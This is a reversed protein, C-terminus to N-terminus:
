CESLVTNRIIPLIQKRTLRLNRQAYIYIVFNGHEDHIERVLSLELSPQASVTLAEIIKGRLKDAALSFVAIDRHVNGSNHELGILIIIMTNKSKAFNELSKLSDELDVFNKVLIPLGIIPVGATVKIDKILLDDATLESIDSKAKNIENFVKNRDLNLQGAKELAAVIEVDVPTARDAEKSFNSTDILIPGRLLSSLQSDIVEPHKNLLNRAVLTSCSGVIELDMEKGSWPWQEDQPRHDIIKVVSDTLYADEDPLTHHDVLVLQLEIEENKKLAELNIEDRFTLLDSIINHRKLFYVVETKVRYEKSSINMLPIVVFDAVGDKIRGLYECFAQILASVASDLDCTENGLVICIRKYISLNSLAAKSKLLFSEM